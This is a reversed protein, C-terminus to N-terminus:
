PSADKRKCTCPSYRDCKCNDCYYEPNKGDHFARLGKLGVSTKPKEIRVSEYMVKYMGNFPHM